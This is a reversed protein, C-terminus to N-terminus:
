DVTSFRGDFFADFYDFAADLVRADLSGIEPALGADLAALKGYIVKLEPLLLLLSGTALAVSKAEAPNTDILTPLQRARDLLADIRRKEALGAPTHGYHMYRGGVMRHNKEETAELWGRAALAPCILEAYLRWLFPGLIKHASLAVSLFNRGHESGRAVAANRVVDVTKAALFIAPPERVVSVVELPVGRAGFLRLLFIPRSKITEIRLIGMALLSLLAIKFTELNNPVPNLLVFAEAPTLQADTM